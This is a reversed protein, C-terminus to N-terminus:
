KQGRGNFCYDMFIQEYLEQQGSIKEPEGTARAHAEFEELTGNSAGGNPSLKRGLESDFSSYREKVMGDLVGDEIIAASIKLAHAYADMGGIHAIFFDELNTSERRVKADFNLGGSGLGGQRLVSLMVMTAKQVDTCFQDTDWGLGQDGTNADISGLMGYIQSFIIDHEFDHGALTTHNPEINTKYHDELGYTHLFCM